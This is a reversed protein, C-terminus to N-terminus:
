DSNLNKLNVKNLFSKCFEMTKINDNLKKLDEKLTKLKENKELLEEYKQFLKDDKSYLLENEFNDESLNNLIKMKILLDKIINEKKLLFNMVIFFWCSSIIIGVIIGNIIQEWSHYHLYVKSYIMFPFILILFYFAFNFKIKFEKQIFFEELIFWFILSSLLCANNSPNGYQKTCKYNPKPDRINNKLIELIFNQIYILILIFVTRTTKKYSCILLCFLSIFYPLSSFIMMMIEFIDEKNLSSYNIEKTPCSSLTLLFANCPISCNINTNNQSILNLEM